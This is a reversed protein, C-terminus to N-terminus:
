PNNVEIMSLNQGAFCKKLDETYEPMPDQDVIRYLERGVISFAIGPLRFEQIPDFSDFFWDRGQHRFSQPM